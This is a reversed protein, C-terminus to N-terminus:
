TLYIRGCRGHIGLNELYLVHCKDSSFYLAKIIKRNNKLIEIYLVFLDHNICENMSNLQCEM